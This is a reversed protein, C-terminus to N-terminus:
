YSAPFGYKTKFDEDLLDTGSAILAWTGEVKKFYAAVGGGKPYDAFVTAFGAPDYKQLRFGSLKKDPKTTVQAEFYARAQAVVLQQDTAGKAKANAELAKNEAELSKVKTTLEKASSREGTLASHQWLYVVGAGILLTLLGVIVYGAVPPRDPPLALPEM